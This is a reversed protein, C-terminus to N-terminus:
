EHTHHAGNMYTGHSMWVHSMVWERTHCSECSLARRAAPFRRPAGNSKPLTSIRVCAAVCVAVWVAVCVAICVAVCAAVCVAVCWPFVDHHVMRSQCPLSELVRQLVCQLACQLVCQLVCQFVCQLVGHSFTTTCWEVNALYLNKCVNCRVSCCVSCCAMPFHRPAGNSISLTIIGVCVAVCVAVCV